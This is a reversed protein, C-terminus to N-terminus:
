YTVSVSALLPTKVADDTALFARVKLYRLGDLGSWLAAGSVTYFSGASGDPGSFGTIDDSSASAAAQFKLTQGAGLGSATWSLTGWDPSAGGDAYTTTFTAVAVYDRQYKLFTGAWGVALCREPKACSVGTLTELTPSAAESWSAGEYRLLSGAGGVAWGESASAMFVSHLNYSVPSSVGSWAAGDWRIIKGGDGVAWGETASVMAVSWLDDSVPSTVAAWSLGDYRLITGNKGVAWADAASLTHVGYLTRGTPSVAEGWGWDYKAIQGGTGVAWGTEAGLIHMGYLVTDQPHSSFEEDYTSETGEFYLLRGFSGGVWGTGDDLTSVGYLDMGGGPTALATWSSGNYDAVNYSGQADLRTQGAARAAGSPLMHVGYWDRADLPTQVTWTDTSAALRVAGGGAAVVAANDAAGASFDGSTTQTWVAAGAPLAAARLAAALVAAIVGGM